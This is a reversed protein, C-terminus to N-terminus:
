TDAHIGGIVVDCTNILHEQDDNWGVLVGSCSVLFSSVGILHV